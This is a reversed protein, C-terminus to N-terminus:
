SDSKGGGEAPSPSPPPCALRIEPGFEALLESLGRLHEWGGVHVTPEQAAHKKIKRALKKDMAEMRAAADSGAVPEKLHDKRARQWEREVLVSLAPEERTALTVLNDTVMLERSLRTLLKRSWGDDGVAVVRAGSRDAYEQAARWESPVELQRAVAELAEPLSGDKRRFHELRGIFERGMTSRFELAYNSVDVTVTEPKLEKLLGLLQDFGGPDLHVTGILILGDM